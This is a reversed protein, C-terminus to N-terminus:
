YLAVSTVGMEYLRKQCAHARSFLFVVTPTCFIRQPPMTCRRIRSKRFLFAFPHMLIHTISLFPVCETKFCDLLFYTLLPCLQLCVFLPCLCFGWCVLKLRAYDQLKISFVKQSTSSGKKWIGSQKPQFSLHFCTILFPINGPFILYWSVAKCCHQGPPACALSFIKGAATRM